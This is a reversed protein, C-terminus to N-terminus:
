QKACNFENMQKSLHFHKIWSFWNVDICQLPYPGWDRNLPQRHLGLWVKNLSRLGARSASLLVGFVAAVLKIPNRGWISQLAMLFKFCHALFDFCLCKSSQLSDNIPVRFSKSLLKNYSPHAIELCSSHLKPLFMILSTREVQSWRAQPKPRPKFYWFSINSLVRTETAQFMCTGWCLRRRSPCLRLRSSIKALKTEHHGSRWESDYQWGLDIQLRSYIILIIFCQSVEESFCRLIKHNHLLASSNKSLDFRLSM